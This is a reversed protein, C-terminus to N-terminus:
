RRSIKNYHEADADAIRQIAARVEEVSAYTNKVAEAVEPSGKTVRNRRERWWELIAIM